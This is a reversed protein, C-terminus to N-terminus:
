FDFLDLITNIGSTLKGGFFAIIGAGMGGAAAVEKLLLFM